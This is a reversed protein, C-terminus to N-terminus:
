RGFPQYNKLLDQLWPEYVLSGKAAEIITAITEKSKKGKAMLQLVNLFNLSASLASKFTAPARSIYNKCNVVEMAMDYSHIDLGAMCAVKLLRSRIGLHTPRPRFGDLAKLKKLASSYQGQAFLLMSESMVRVEYYYAEDICILYKKVFDRAWAFSKVTIASNLINLFRNPDINGRGDTYVGQQLGFKAVTFSRENFAAKGERIKKACYNGLYKCIASLEKRGLNKGSLILLKELSQYTEEDGTTYLQQIRSYFEWLAQPTAANKAPSGKEEDKILGRSALECDIKLKGIRSFVAFSDAYAALMGDSPPSDAIFGNVSAFKVLMDKLYDLEETKPANGIEDFLRNADRVFDDIMGREKQVMLWLLRSEHSGDALKRALLFEKLIGYMDSFANLFAKRPPLVADKDPPFLKQAAVEIDFELAPHHRKCYDFVQLISTKRRNSARLHRGFESLEKQSLSGLLQLFNHKGMSIKSPFFVIEWHFACILALYAM